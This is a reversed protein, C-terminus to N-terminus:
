RQTRRSETHVIPFNLLLEYGAALADLRPDAHPTWLPREAGEITAVFAPETAPWAILGILGRREFRAATLTQLPRGQLVAERLTEYDAQASDAIPWFRHSL